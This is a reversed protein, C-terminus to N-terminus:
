FPAPGFSPRRAIGSDEHELRNYLLNGNQCVCANVIYKGDLGIFVGLTFDNYYYLRHCVDFRVHQDFAFASSKLHFLINNKNYKVLSKGVGSAGENLFPLWSFINSFVGLHREVGSLGCVIPYSKIRTNIFVRGCLCNCSFTHSRYAHGHRLILRFVGHLLASCRKILDWVM